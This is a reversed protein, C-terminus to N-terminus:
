NIFWEPTDIYSARYDEPLQHKKYEALYSNWCHHQEKFLLMFISDIINQAINWNRSHRLRWIRASLTEDAFGFGELKAYTLTNIVQDIAILTQKM